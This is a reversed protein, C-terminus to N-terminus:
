YRIWDSSKERDFVARRGTREKARRPHFDAITVAAPLALIIECWRPKVIPHPLSPLAADIDVSDGLKIRNFSLQTFARKILWSAILGDIKCNDQRLRTEPLTHSPACYFNILNVRLIKKKIKMSVVTPTNTEKSRGRIAPALARVSTRVKILSM